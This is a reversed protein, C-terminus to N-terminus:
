GNLWLIGILPYLILNSVLLAMVIKPHEVVRTFDSIKHEIVM